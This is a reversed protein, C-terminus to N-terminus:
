TSPTGNHHVLGLRVGLVAAQIRNDVALKGLISSIHHKVTGASLHLREGIEGNDCGAVVLALVEIERPTLRRGDARPDDPEDHHRLRALLGGAVTPAILAQGAAAARIGRIIEALNADKLLYGSAGALVAELVAEEDSAVTLM